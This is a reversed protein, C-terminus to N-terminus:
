VESQVGRRAQNDHEAALTQRMESVDLTCGILRTVRGEAEVVPRARSHVDRPTGDPRTIRHELDYPVQSSVSMQIAETVQQRDSPSLTKLIDTLTMPATVVPYGFIRFMEASWQMQGSAIHLEWSGLHAIEQATALQTENRRVAESALKFDTVETFSLVVGEIVNDLTRYPQV